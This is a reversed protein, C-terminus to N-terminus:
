PNYWRESFRKLVNKWGKIYLMLTNAIIKLFANLNNLEPVCIM